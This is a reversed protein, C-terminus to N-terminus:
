SKEQAFKKQMDDVLIKGPNKSNETKLVTQPKAVEFV